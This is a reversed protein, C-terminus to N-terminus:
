RPRCLRVPALAPGDARPRARDPQADPHLGLRRRCRGPVPRLGQHQVQERRRARLLVLDPRARHVAAREFTRSSTMQSPKLTQGNSFKIGKRIHFLYTKGGNTPTPISTALDPVIKAGAVGGVKPSGRGATTPTSSCSGSSCPTTRPRTPSASPPTPWSRSSAARIGPRRHRAPAPAPDPSGSSCAALILTLAGLSAAGASLGSYRRFRSRRRARPQLRASRAAPFTM